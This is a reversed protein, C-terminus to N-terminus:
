EAHIESLPLAMFIQGLVEGSPDVIPMFFGSFYEDRLNVTAFMEQQGHVVPEYAVPLMQTGLIPNGDPGLFTSAVSIGNVFFVFEANYRAALTEVAKSTDLAYGVVLVGIIEGEHFLPVSSRVPVQREGVPSYAVSIIGNLAELLSVTRFEDGYREPEDTRALVIADACAVTLYTIGFDAVLQHGVRLIEQTDRTLVAQSIRPDYSLQLGVDIVMRRIDDKLERVSNAATDLREEILYDNFASFRAITVALTVVLLVVVLLGTPLIIKGKFGLKKMETEEM